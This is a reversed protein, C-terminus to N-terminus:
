HFQTNIKPKKVNKEIKKLNKKENKGLIQIIPVDTEFREHWFM